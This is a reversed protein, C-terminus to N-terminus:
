SARKEDPLSNARRYANVKMASDSRMGKGSLWRRLERPDAKAIDRAFASNSKGYHAVAARLEDLTLVDDRGHSSMKDRYYFSGHLLKSNQPKPKKM